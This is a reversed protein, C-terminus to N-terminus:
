ARAPCVSVQNEESFIDTTHHEVASDTLEWEVFVQSM